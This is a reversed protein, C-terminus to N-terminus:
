GVSKKCGNSKWHRWINFPITLFVSFKFHTKVLNCGSTLLCVLEGTRKGAFEYDFTLGLHLDEPKVNEPFDIFGYLPRFSM